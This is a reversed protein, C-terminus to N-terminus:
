SFDIVKIDKALDRGSGESQLALKAITQAHAVLARLISKTMM